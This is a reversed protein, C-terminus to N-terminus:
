GIIDEGLQVWDSILNDWQYIRVCGREDADDSSGGDNGPSSIAVINGDSSLSIAAGSYDGTDPSYTDTMGDIDSGRQRWCDNRWEFIRVHGLHGNNGLIEDPDNGPAGIAVTNGDASLAVSAGSQNYIFEGGIDFGRQRWRNTDWDFIRVQGRERSDGVASLATKMAGLLTDADHAPAYVGGTADALGRLDATAGAGLALGVINIEISRGESLLREPLAALQGPKCSENGDSLLIVSRPWSESLAAELVSDYIPTSGNASLGDIAAILKEPTAEEPSVLLEIDDCSNSRHGFVMLGMEVNNHCM